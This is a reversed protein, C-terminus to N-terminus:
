QTKVNVFMTRNDRWVFFVVETAQKQTNAETVNKLDDASTVPTADVRQIIDGLRLGGISALGGSKLKSVVVGSFTTQDLNNLMFDSLVMERVGYELKKDEYEAADTAAIPAKEVTAEIALEKMANDVSRSVGFNVKTGPALEAIRKQFIPLREERDVPIPAKDLQHIVDGTKIGAKDAPSDKIVDNVIVGGSVSVGIAEALDETLAQMTIGLWARESKGKSPPSSILRSIKDITIVGLMPFSSGDFSDLFGGADSSATGPDPLVGLIGVPQLREDYLVSGIEAPGFGVTLPFYEPAEVITSLMGIDAGVEPTVFEPLLLFAALWSGTRFSSVTTFRVPQLTESSQLNMRAVGLHTFREIGLYEATKKEKRGLFNVDIRTPTLKVAMGPVEGGFDAQLFSGDFLIMGDATVVTGMVRQKAESTQSGFSMEITFDMVVTYQQMQQSLRKFDFTQASLQETMTVCLAAAIIVFRLFKNEM